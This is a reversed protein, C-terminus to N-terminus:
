GTCLQGRMMRMTSAPSPTDITGSIGPPATVRPWLTPVRLRPLCIRGIWEPTSTRRPPGSDADLRANM